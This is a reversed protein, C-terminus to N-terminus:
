ACALVPRAREAYGIGGPTDAVHKLVADDGDLEPPPKRRRHLGATLAAIPVSSCREELACQSRFAETTPAGRKADHLAPRRQRARTKVQRLFIQCRSRRGAAVTFAANVVLVPEAGATGKRSLLAAVDLRAFAM